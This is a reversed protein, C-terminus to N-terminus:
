SVLVYLVIYHVHLYLLKSSSEVLVFYFLKHMYMGSYLCVGVVKLEVCNKKITLTEIKQAGFLLIFTYIVDKM